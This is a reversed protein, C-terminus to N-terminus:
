SDTLYKDGRRERNEDATVDAARQRHTVSAMSADDPAARIEWVKICM